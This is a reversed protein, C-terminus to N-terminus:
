LRDIEYILNCFLVKASRPDTPVTYGNEQMIINCLQVMEQSCGFLSQEQAFAAVSQADSSSLNYSCDRGNTLTPSFYLVDPRGGPCESNRVERIRHTNWLINVEDLESQLIGLFCFRICEVHYSLSVDFSGEDCLDKFFNIWWASRSRKLLSWWSEIRQNRVSSGYMFSPRTRNKQRMFYRQVGCIVVNESGRDSRICSPFLKLDKVCSLYYSCIIKPNNNSEGVRLWMIKRSYGDIAGHIPFGFPKLKDYGDIHWLYNPGISRYVRRVLRHSTRLEVSEPDISKIILRVSERDVTFGKARLKQHM